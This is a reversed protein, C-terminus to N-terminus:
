RAHRSFLSLTILTSRPKKAHADANAQLIADAEPDSSGGDSQADYDESGSGSQESQAAEVSDVALKVRKAAPAM